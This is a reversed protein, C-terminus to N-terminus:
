NSERKIINFENYYNYLKKIVKKYNHNKNVWIKGKEGHKKIEGQNKILYVLTEYLNNEDVNIFPHDPFQSEMESNMNTLTCIGMSLSEISNMGYGWGGTNSIQDINIDCSAKIEIAKQHPVRELFIFKIGYELELQRCIKIIKNSGKYYRNMASHFIKLPSNLSRNPKNFQNTDFPLPLFKINPHLNLLDIENTLTLISISDLAPIVGRNRLDIGHYHCLIPINKSSLKKAFRCDRYFDLGWEFHVIDYDLLKFRNIAREVKWSWVFDRFKFWLIEIINSPEWKPYFAKIRKQPDRRYIIWQIIRRSFIYLISTSILPLNLTIDEKYRLKSKYFTVFRCENGMEEHAKKWISLVGVTNEPSIYLIKLAM